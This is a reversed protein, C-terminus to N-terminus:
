NSHESLRGYVKCKAYKRRRTLLRVSVKTIMWRLQSPVIAEAACSRLPLRDASDASPYAWGLCAYCCSISRKLTQCSQIDYIALTDCNLQVHELPTPYSLVQFCGVQEGQAQAPLNCFQQEPQSHSLDCCVTSGGSMRIHFPRVGSSMHM